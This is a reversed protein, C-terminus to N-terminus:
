PGEDFVPVTPFRHGDTHPIFRAASFRNMFAQNVNLELYTIRGALAQARRWAALDLLVKEAGQVSTNGLAQYVERSLDPLMGLQIAMEPDIYQGFAGAVFFRKIESFDVGVELTITELISYMAAKSRCLSDLEIQNVTIPEGSATDEAAVVVYAPGDETEVLHSTDGGLRFRGRQDIIKGLYLQAALDVFGSGCIGVPAMDGITRWSAKKTDPDIRVREIAGPAATMGMRAVGSELAPGAAGACAILFDRGGLVVEANTGVDVLFNVGEAQDLGAALIGSILDGGFYSGVNPFVLVPAGPLTGLGLADARYPPFHNVVPIYPERRIHDPWLGALLHSMITNGAVAVAAVDRPIRGQDGCLDTAARSIAGAALGQLEELGGSTAYHIRTLVDPGHEIQPNRVVRKDLVRGAHLDLLHLHIHTTGLDVALALVPGQDSRFDIIKVPTASLDLVAQGTFDLDWMRRSLRNFDAPDTAVAAGWQHEVARQLRDIDATNNQLSPREVELDLPQVVPGTTDPAPNM